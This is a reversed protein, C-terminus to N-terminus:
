WHCRPGALHCSCSWDPEMGYAWTRACTRQPSARCVLGVDPFAALRSGNIARQGPTTSGPVILSSKTERTSKMAVQASMVPCDSSRMHALVAGAEQRRHLGRLARRCPADVQDVMRLHAHERQREPSQFAMIRFGCTRPSPEVEPWSGSGCAGPCSYLRRSSGSFFAIEPVRFAVHHCLQSGPHDCQSVLTPGHRRLRLLCKCTDPSSPIRAPRRFESHNLFALSPMKMWQPDVRHRGPVVLPIGAEHIPIFHGALPGIVELM